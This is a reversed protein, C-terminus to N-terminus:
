EVNYSGIHINRTSCSHARSHSHNHTLYCGHYKHELCYHYHIFVEKPLLTLCATPGDKNGWIAIGDFRRALDCVM